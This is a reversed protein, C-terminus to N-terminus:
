GKLEERDLKIWRRDCDSVIMKTAPSKEFALTALHYATLVHEQLEQNAELDEVDINHSRAEDRDIRRGHSKHESANRFFEATDKAATKPDQKKSLMRGELWNAVMTEGYDLANQAEKLLAPGISQLIPAWVHAAIPNEIIEDHAQKFQDVISQASVFRGSIAMQPDIPGLQSQRGMIVKNAALSIMTGASMALTPVIVEIDHFKQWLYAVITEAANAVGGPTHLLLTLGKDWKMGHMVSMFGNIDEHSIQLLQSSVGPKQLFASAYFIVNRGGRIEGIKQLAQQQRNHLWEAPQQQELEKLLENWSPM